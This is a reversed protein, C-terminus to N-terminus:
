LQCLAPSPERGPAPTHWPLSAVPHTTCAATGTGQTHSLHQLPKAQTMETIPCALSPFPDGIPDPRGKCDFLLGPATFHTAAQVLISVGELWVAPDQAAAFITAEGAHWQTALVDPQGAPVTGVGHPHLYRALAARLPHAVLSAPQPGLGELHLTLTPLVPQPTPPQLSGLSPGPPLPSTPATVSPALSIPSDGLRLLQSRCCNQYRVDFGM